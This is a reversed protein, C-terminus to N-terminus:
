CRSSIQEHRDMHWLIQHQGTAKATSRLGDSGVLLLYLLISLILVASLPGAKIHLCLVAHEKKRPLIQSTGARGCSRCAGNGWGVHHVVFGLCAKRSVLSKHIHRGAHKNTKRDTMTLLIYRDGADM